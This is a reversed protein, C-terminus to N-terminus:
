NMTRPVGARAAAMAEDRNAALHDVISSEALGRAAMDAMFAFVQSKDLGRRYPRDQVMAQFIDAIRLIRAELPLTSADLRFPYGGGGPEEHHHAAWEAIDELGHLHRLLQFTEFSHTNIIERESADLEGPKDLIHNPVRLKGVDHLLGAIELKARRTEGLEMKEALLSALGAVGLSHEATFPRKAVAARQFFGAL